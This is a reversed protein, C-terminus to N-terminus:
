LEKEIAELEMEARLEPSVIKNLREELVELKKQKSTIQIKDIRLKIDNLWDELSHGQWLFAPADQVSVGMKDAALYYSSNTEILEGAIMLLMRINAEVQLNVNPFRHSYYGCHTKYNPREARAIAQRQTNVEKILALIKQNMENTKSKAM